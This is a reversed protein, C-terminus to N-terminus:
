SYKWCDKNDLLITPIISRLPAKAVSSHKGHDQRQVGYAGRRRRVYRHMLSVLYVFLELTGIGRSNGLTNGGSIRCTIRAIM